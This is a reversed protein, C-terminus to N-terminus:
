DNIHNLFYNYEMQERLKKNHERTEAGYTVWASNFKIVGEEAVIIYVCALSSISNVNFSQPRMAVLRGRIDYVKIIGRSYVMGNEIEFPAEKIDEVQYPKVYEITDIEIEGYIHIFEVSDGTTEDYIYEVEYEYSSQGFSSIATLVTFALITFIRKM